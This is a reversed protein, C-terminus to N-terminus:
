LALAELFVIISLRFGLRKPVLFGDADEADVVMDPPVPEGDWVQFASSAEPMVDFDHNRRLHVEIVNSGILEINFCPIDTGDVRLRNPTSTKSSVYASGSVAVRPHEIQTLAAPNYYVASANDATAVFAEGRASAFGDQSVLRMGNALVDWGAHCLVFALAFIFIRKKERFM